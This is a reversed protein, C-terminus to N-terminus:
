DPLIMSLRREVESRASGSPLLELARRMLAASREPGLRLGRPTDEGLLAFRHSGARGSTNPDDRGTQFFEVDIRAVLTEFSGAPIEAWEAGLPVGALGEVRAQEGSAHIVLPPVTRDQPGINEIALALFSTPVGSGDCSSGLLSAAAAVLCVTFAWGRRGPPM